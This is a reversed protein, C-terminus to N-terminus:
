QRTLDFFLLPVLAQDTVRLKVVTAEAGCGGVSAAGASLAPFTDTLGVSLQFADEPAEDYRSCTPVLGLKGLGSTSSEVM